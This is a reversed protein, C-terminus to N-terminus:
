CGVRIRFGVADGDSDSLAKAPSFDNLANDCETSSRADVEAAPGTTVVAPRRSERQSAPAV